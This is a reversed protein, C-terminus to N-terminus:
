PYSKMVDAIVAFLETAETSDNMVSFTLYHGLLGQSEALTNKVYLLFPTNTDPPTAGSITGDVVINNIGNKIDINVNTIQGAFAPANTTVNLYYLFDGVSVMSGIEILPTISFEFQRASDAGSYSACTAIGGATRLEFNDGSAGAAPQNRINAFWAGEKKIFWENDIFGNGQIDTSMTMQWSQDSELNITKFLKNELPSQNIVSTIESTYQAGYFNNRTENVNHRYLNGAYFTYFYNNMGIMWDPAYSYFSPWGQVSDSYSLTYIEGTNIIAPPVENTPFPTPPPVPTAIPTNTPPITTVPPTNTPTPTPTPPVYDTNLCIQGTGSTPSTTSCFSVFTHMTYTGAPLTKAPSYQIATKDSSTAIAREQSKYFSFVEISKSDLIVGSINVSDGTSLIATCTAQALTDAPVVITTTNAIQNTSYDFGNYVNGNSSTGCNITLGCYQAM